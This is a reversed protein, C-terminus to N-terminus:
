SAFWFFKMQALFGNDDIPYKLSLVSDIGCNPCFATKGGNGEELWEIIEKPEFVAECYFCGCQKSNLIEDEHNSSGLHAQRLQEASYKKGSPKM